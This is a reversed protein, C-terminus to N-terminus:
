NATSSLDVWSRIELQRPRTLSNNLIARSVACTSQQIESGGTTAQNEIDANSALVGGFVRNGNGQTEFNGQVIIIGYFVFGGRLDLDGEVLLVGQGVGASQIRANGDVHIIPFYNGCPATPNLPDGWNTLVSTSCEGDAVVPGTGNIDGAPLSLDAM